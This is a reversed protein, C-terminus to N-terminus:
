ESNDSQKGYNKAQEQRQQFKALNDPQQVSHNLINELQNSNPPIELNEQSSQEPNSERLPKYKWYDQGQSDKRLLGLYRQGNVKTILAHPTTKSKWTLISLQNPFFFDPNETLIEQLIKILNNKDNM